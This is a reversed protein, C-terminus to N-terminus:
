SACTRATATARAKYKGLHKVAYSYLQQVSVSVCSISEGTGMSGPDRDYRGLGRGRRPPGRRQDADRTHTGPLHNHILSGSVVFCRSGSPYRTEQRSLSCPAIGVCTLHRISGVHIRLGPECLLQCIVRGDILGRFAWRSSFARQRGVAIMISLPFSFSIPFTMSQSSGSSDASVIRM